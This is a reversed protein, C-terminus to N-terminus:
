HTPLESTVDAVSEAVADAEAAVSETITEETATASTRADGPKPVKSPSDSNSFIRRVVDPASSYTPRVPIQIPQEEEEPPLKYEELMAKWAKELLKLDSEPFTSIAHDVFKEFEKIEHMDLVRPSNPESSWKQHAIRMDIVGFYNRNPSLALSLASAFRRDPRVSLKRSLRWLLAVNVNSRQLGALNFFYVFSLRTPVLKQRVIHKHWAELAPELMNNAQYALAVAEFFASDWGIQKDKLDNIAMEAVAFNTAGNANINATRVARYNRISARVRSLSLGDQIVQALKDSQSKFSHQKAILTTYHDIELPALAGSEVAALVKELNETDGKEAYAKILVSVSYPPGDPKFGWATYKALAEDFLRAAILAELAATKPAIGMTSTIDEVSALLEPQFGLEAYIQNMTTLIPLMFGAKEAVKRAHSYISQLTAIDGMHAYTRLLQSYMAANPTMSPRTQFSQWLDLALKPADLILYIEMAMAYDDPTPTHWSVIEQFMDRAREYKGRAKYVVMMTHYVGYPISGRPALYDSLLANFVVTAGILAGEQMKQVINAYYIKIRPPVETSIRNNAWDGGQVQGKTKGFWKAEFMDDEWNRKLAPDYSSFDKGEPWTYQLPDDEFRIDLRPNDNWIDRGPPVPPNLIYDRRFLPDELKKPLAARGEIKVTGGAGANNAAWRAVSRPWKFSTVLKKEQPAFSRGRSARASVSLRSVARRALSYM